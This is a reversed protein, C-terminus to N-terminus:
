GINVMSGKLNLVASSEVTVPANGKLTVGATAEIKIDGSSSKIEVSGAKVVVNGMGADVTIDAGGTINIKQDSTIDLQGGQDLVLEYKGDGTKLTIKESGSAEDFTLEHGTRTVIQSRELKGSAIETNPPKHKASYVAGLVVMSNFADDGGRLVIVEDDLEPMFLHGFEASAAPFLLRLWGSEVETEFEPFKVKIRGLGDPDDLSTVVGHYIIRNLDRPGQDEPLPCREGTM